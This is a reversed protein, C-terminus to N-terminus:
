FRGPDRYTALHCWGVATHGETGMAIATAIATQNSDSQHLIGYIRPAHSPKCQSKFTQVSLEGARARTHIHTYAHTRARAEQNWVRAHRTARDSAHRKVVKDSCPVARKCRFIRTLTAARGKRM